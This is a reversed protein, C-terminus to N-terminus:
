GSPPSFSNKPSAPFGLELKLEDHAKWNKNQLKIELAAFYDEKNQEIEKLREYEKIDLIVAVPKEGDKIIQLDIMQILGKQTKDPLYANFEDDFIVRYNGARLRKFTALKGKLIKINTYYGPNQAYNEIKTLIMEASKKNSKSIAKIQRIAIESYRIEM